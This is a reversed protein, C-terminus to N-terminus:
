RNDRNVYITGNCLYNNSKFEHIKGRQIDSINNTQYGNLVCYKGKIIKLELM